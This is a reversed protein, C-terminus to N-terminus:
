TIVIRDKGQLDKKITANEFGASLFCNLTETGKKENIECFVPIKSAAAFAAIAKYFVIPDHEAFLAMSPEYTMVNVPLTHEEDRGIYPPNSVILDCEPLKERQAPDLFDCEILEIELGLDNANQAAIALADTSKDIATIKVYPLSKKISLAICGSGTGIDLIHRIKRNQAYQIVWDVLEETEPRPILVGPGVHLVIDRFYAKGTIYQLPEHNVLRLCAKDYQIQEEATLSVRGDFLDQSLYRLMLEAEREGFIGTLQGLWIQKDPTL